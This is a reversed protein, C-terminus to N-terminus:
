EIAKASYPGRMFDLPDGFQRACYAMWIVPAVALMVTFLVFAGGSGRIGDGAGCRRRSSGGAMGPLYLDM